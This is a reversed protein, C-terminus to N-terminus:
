KSIQQEVLSYDINSLFIYYNIIIKSLMGKISGNNTDTIILLSLLLMLTVSRDCYPPTHTHTDTHANQSDMILM